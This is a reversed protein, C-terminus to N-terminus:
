FNLLSDARIGVVVVVVVVVVDVFLAAAAFPHVHMLVVRYISLCKRPM